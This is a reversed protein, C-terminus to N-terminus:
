QTQYLPNSDVSDLGNKNMKSGIFSYKKVLWEPSNSAMIGVAHSPNLGLAVFGKAADQVEKHYRFM